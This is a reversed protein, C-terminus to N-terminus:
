SGCQLQFKRIQNQLYATQALNADQYLRNFEREFHRAVTPNEIVLLNEDNQTNAAKSWNHSGIIVVRNDVLAFKHHLKDGDPLEPFGVSTIPTTWPENDKEYKCRHDPLAMGMMDLAESYSRYIFSRDILSRVQVGSEVRERIQNAIGQDTFVFLAVDISQRAQQLTRGILGNVTQESPTNTTNPAFQVTVSSGPISIQQPARPSKQPGFISDTQGGPGDGWMLTFEQQYANALATSDIVLLTNTNGRSDPLLADGHLGSLTWNASGTIVQQGDIIMFKHHMLGSGKTGDATDDLLPIQATQLMLVADRERAEAPSVTGDGNQDGFARLNEYKGRAYDDQQALWHTDKGSWPQSYQHELIVRVRVGTRAKAILAQAIEPLNLEQVAIDITTNAQDIATLIVQELDDGWRQVQRYPDRYVTAPSHNFFVKIYPDQPLTAATPHLSSQGRGFAIAIALLLGAMFLGALWRRQPKSRTTRYTHVKISSPKAM